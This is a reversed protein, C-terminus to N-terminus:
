LFVEISAQKTNINLMSEPQLEAERMIEDPLHFICLRRTFEEQERRKGEETSYGQDM